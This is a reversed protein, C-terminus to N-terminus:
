YRDSNRRHHHRDGGPATGEIECVWRSRLAAVVDKVSWRDTPRTLTFAPIRTALRDLMRFQGIPEHAARALYVQRRITALKAVGSLEVVGAREVPGTCLEFIAALPAPETAPGDVPVVWKAPAVPHEVRDTATMGLRIASDQSPHMRAIGPHVRLTGDADQRVVSYDDALMKWGEAMLGLLTTSKGAGGRGCVTIARGAQVASIGHLLFEGRQRLVAAVIAGVFQFQLIHEDSNTRPEVVVRVGDEVLFRGGGWPPHHLFQRTNAQWWASEAVVPSLQEPVRGYAVEVVPAEDASAPAMMPCQFPVHYTLGHARYRYSM